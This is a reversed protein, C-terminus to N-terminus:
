RRRRLAVLGGLGILGAAAPAPVVSIEYMLDGSSSLDGPFYGPRLADTSSGVTAAGSVAKIHKFNFNTYWMGVMLTANDPIVVNHSSLDVSLITPTNVGLVPTTFTHSLLQAGGLDPLGDGGPTALFITLTVDSPAPSGGLFGGQNYVGFRIEQLTGGGVVQVDDWKEGGEFSQVLNLNGFEDGDPVLNSYIVQQGVATGAAAAVIVAAAVGMVRTTM